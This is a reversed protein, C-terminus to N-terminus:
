RWAKPSTRRRWLPSSGPACRREAAFRAPRDAHHDAAGRHHHNGDGGCIAANEAVEAMAMMKAWVSAACLPVQFTFLPPFQDAVPLQAPPVIAFPSVAVALKVKLIVAARVTVRSVLRVMLLITKVSKVVALWSQVKALLPVATRVRAPVSGLMLEVLRVAVTEATSSPVVGHDFIPPLVNTSVPALVKEPSKVTLSPMRRAWAAAAKPLEVLMTTCFASFGPAM